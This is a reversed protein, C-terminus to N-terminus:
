IAEFEDKDDDFQLSSSAASTSIQPKSSTLADATSPVKSEKESEDVEEEEVEESEKVEEGEESEEEVNSEEEETEETLSIQHATDSM